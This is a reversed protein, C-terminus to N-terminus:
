GLPEGEQWFGKENSKGIVRTGFSELIRRGEAQHLSESDQERLWDRISLMGKQRPKGYYVNLESNLRGTIFVLNTQSNPGGSEFEHIHHWNYEKPTEWSDGRRWNLVQRADARDVWAPGDDRIAEWAKGRKFSRGPIARRWRTGYDEHRALGTYEAAKKLPTARYQFVAADVNTVVAPYWATGSLVEIEDNEKVAAAAPAASAVVPAGADPGEAEVLAPHEGTNPNMRAHIRWVAGVREAHLDQFGHELRLQALAASIEDQDFKDRHSREGLDALAQLGRLWRQQLEPSPPEGEGPKQQGTAAQTPPAGQTAALKPDAAGTPPAEGEKWQGAPAQEGKAKPPVHDNLLDTMFRDASFDVETFQIEPFKDSGIVYDVDAGIGFQGPLPYELQALPWTWRKDPAPSWWPSDLEVFLDGDLGLFPQAALEMHGKIFFEGKKGAAPDATERYGVTPTAEVYGRVGALASIGAGAKIDHGLLEVGVGGEGRLRLGAFASINLTGAISFNQLVRPDTSYTGLIRINYLTGPGFKALAELGVNAFLFVNGVLPVGYLARVEFKPLPKIIDRQPFLEKRAEPVIEGVVTVYGVGDVIVQAKGTLWDTFRFDLVGWGALVRPGPRPGQTAAPAPGAAPAAPVLAEPGLRGAVVEKATAEDTVLLTVEGGLKETTYRVTGKVDVIGGAYTALLNGSFKPLSVAVDASGRLLGDPGRSIPVTVTGLRPVTTTATADFTVLDNALGFTGRGSLFGGLRFTFEPVRLVLVGAELKNVPRPFHLASMGVWGLAASYKEIQNLLESPDPVVRDGVQVSAYGEVASDKMRLALVPQIGASRLPELLPHILPIPQFRSDPRSEYKGEHARVRIVGAAIEGLRVRVDGGASGREDLYSIVAAPPTFSPTGALAVEDAPVGPAAPVPGPTGPVAAPTAAPPEPVPPPAAPAETAAQRAVSGAPRQQLTHTLEHALLRQGHPSGPQWRGTGFYVNRGRTFAQARLANAATAADAGTHVRVGGLDRGFRQEFFSRTGGPLPQGDGRGAGTGTGPQTAAPPTRGALPKTQVTTDGVKGEEDEEERKELNAAAAGDEAKRQLSPVSAARGVPPRPAAGTGPEASRMIEEAVEDAEREFEDAPTSVTLKAQVGHDRLLLRQVAQNGIPGARGAQHGPQEAAPEHGAARPPRLRSPVAEAHGRPEHGAV